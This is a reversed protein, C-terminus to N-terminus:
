EGYYSYLGGFWVNFVTIASNNLFCCSRYMRCRSSSILSRLFVAISCCFRTDLFVSITVFKCSDNTSCLSAILLSKPSANPSSSPFCWCLPLEPIGDTFAESSLRLEVCSLFCSVKFPSFRVLCIGKVTDPLMHEIILRKWENRICHQTIITPKTTHNKKM